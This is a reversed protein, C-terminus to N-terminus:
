RRLPPPAGQPSDPIGCRSCPNLPFLTNLPVRYKMYHYARYAIDLDGSPPVSPSAHVPPEDPRRRSFGAFANQGEETM